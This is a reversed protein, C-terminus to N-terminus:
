QNMELLLKEKKKKSYIFRWKFKKWDNKILVGKRLRKNNKYRNITRQRNEKLWEKGHDSNFIEILENTLKKIDEEIEKNNESM